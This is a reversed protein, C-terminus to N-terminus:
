EPCTGSVWKWPMWDPPLVDGWGQPIACHQNARMLWYCDAAEACDWNTYGLYWEQDVCDDRLLQRDCSVAWQRAEDCLRVCESFYTEYFNFTGGDQSDCTCEGTPGEPGEVGCGVVTLVLMCFGVALAVSGLFVVGSVVWNKLDSM